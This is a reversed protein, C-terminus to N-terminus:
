RRRDAQIMGSQQSTHTFSIHAVSTARYTTGLRVIQGEGNLLVGSVTVRKTGFANPNSATGSFRVITPSDHSLALNRLTVLVSEHSTPDADPIIRRKM